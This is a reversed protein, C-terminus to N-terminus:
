ASAAHRPRMKKTYEEISTESTNMAPAMTDENTLCRSGERNIRSIKETDAEIFAVREGM